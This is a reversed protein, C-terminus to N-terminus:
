TYRIRGRHTCYNNCVMLGKRSRLDSQEARPPVEGGVEREELLGDIMHIVVNDATFPGHNGM